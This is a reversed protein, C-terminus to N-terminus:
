APTRLRLTLFYPLAPLQAEYHAAFEQMIITVQWDDMGAIICAEPALVSRAEHLLARVLDLGDRGTGAVSNRPGRWGAERDLDFVDVIAPAVWPLNAIIVHPRLAAARVPELLAGQRFQVHVAGLSRANAQACQVAAASLDTGLVIADPRHLAYTVALAGCGTGVDVVVPQTIERTLDLAAEVVSASSPHSAFVGADVRFSRGAFEQQVERPSEQAAAPHPSAAGRAALQKHLELVAEYRRLIHDPRIEKPHKV